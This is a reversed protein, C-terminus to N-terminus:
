VQLQWPPRPSPPTFQSNPTPILLSYIYMYIYFCMYVISLCRPGVLACPVIYSVRHYVMISFFTLFFSHINMHLHTVRSSLSAQRAAAWPAASAPMVPLSRSPASSGYPLYQCLMYILSVETLCLGSSQSILVGRLLWQHQVPCGGATLRGGGVGRVVGATPKTDGTIMKISTSKGAGNHGLLGLVEGPFLNVM